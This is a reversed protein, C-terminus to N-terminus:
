AFQRFWFKCGGREKVIKMYQGFQNVRLGVKVRDKALSLENEKNKLFNGGHEM